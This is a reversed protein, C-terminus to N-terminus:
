ITNEEIIKTPFTTATRQTSCNIECSLIKHKHLMLLLLLLLIHSTEFTHLIRKNLLEM